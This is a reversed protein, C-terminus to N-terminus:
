WAPRAITVAGNLRASLTACTNYLGTLVKQIDALDLKTVTQRTQGTDLVYSQMGGVGLALQAAEYAAIAAQTATLSAQTQTADM